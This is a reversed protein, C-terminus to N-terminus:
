IINKTVAVRLFRVINQRASSARPNVGISFAASEQRRNIDNM